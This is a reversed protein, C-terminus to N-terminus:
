KLPTISSRPREGGAKGGPVGGPIGGPAGQGPVAAGINNLIHPNPLGGAIVPINPFFLAHDYEEIGFYSRFMKGTKRSVVGIIPAGQTNDGGGEPQGIVGDLQTDAAQGPLKVSGVQAVRALEQIGQPNIPLRSKEQSIIIAELLEKALPDGPNVTKWNTNGEGECPTMPDCIASPRLLRIRRGTPDSVGVVLEKLDTPFAGGRFMRYNRIAVVVQQGRWLMEEEKERQMERQLTPAAATTLILGFMMVVMLGVLAYGREERQGKSANRNNNM